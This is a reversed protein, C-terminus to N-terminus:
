LQENQEVTDCTHGCWGIFIFRASSAEMAKYCMKRFRNFAVATSEFVYSRNASEQDLASMLSLLGDQDNWLGVESGHFLNLGISRFLTGKERKNANEFHLKSGNEFAVMERREMNLPVYFDHDAPDLSHIMRRYVYNMATRKDNDDIAFGGTVGPFRMMWYMLFALIITTTGSQRPKLVVFQHVGENLGKVIEEILYVQTAIPVLPCTGYRKSEIGIKSCLNLFAAPNISTQNPTIIGPM